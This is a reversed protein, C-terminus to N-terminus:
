AKAELAALRSEITRQREVVGRMAFMAIDTYAVSYRDGAPQGAVAINGADDLVEEVEEWSDHRVMGYRLADLGHKEFIEIYRQATQGVFMKAGDEGDKNIDALWQYIGTDGAIELACALEDSTLSRVPTKERADSTQITPNSCYITSWRNNSYGIAAGNDVIPMWTFIIGPVYALSVGSGFSSMTFNGYHNGGSQVIQMSINNGTGPYSVTVRGYGDYEGTNHFTHSIGTYNANVFEIAHSANTVRMARTHAGGNTLVFAGSYTGNDNIVNCQGGTDFRMQVMGGCNLTLPLLAGSGARDVAISCSSPNAIMCIYPSNNVNSSNFCFMASTNATGNPEISVSTASNALSSVFMVRQNLDANHFDGALRSGSAFVQVGSFTNGGTLNAKGTQLAQFESPIARNLRAALEVGDVTYPDVPWDGAQIAQTGPVIAAM